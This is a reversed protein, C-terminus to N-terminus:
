YTKVVTQVVTVMIVHVDTSSLKTKHRIFLVITLQAQYGLETGFPVQNAVHHHLSSFLAHLSDAFM